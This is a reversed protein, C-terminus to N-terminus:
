GDQEAWWREGIALMDRWVSDFFGHMRAMQRGAETDEGFLKTGRKGMEAWQTLQRVSDLWSRYWVEADVLYRERRDERLRRVMHVSELYGIATSVSAPSVRLLRVLEASTLGRPAVVLAALTRAPMRPVGTSLLLSVLDEAFEQHTTPLPAPASPAAPARGRRARSATAHQAADPQYGSLGSNRQVERSVTSTPRGLEAAIQAYSLGEAIGEAIRERDASTM